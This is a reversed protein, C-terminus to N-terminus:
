IAEGNKSCVFLIDRFTEGARTNREWYFKKESENYCIKSNSHNRFCANDDEEFREVIPYPDRDVEFSSNHVIFQVPEISFFTSTNTTEFHQYREVWKQNKVACVEYVDSAFATSLLFLLNVM